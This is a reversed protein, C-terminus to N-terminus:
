SNGSQTQYRQVGQGALIGHGAEGEGGQSQQHDANEQQGVRQNDQLLAQVQAFANRHHQGAPQDPEQDRDETLAVGAHGVRHPMINQFVGFEQEEEERGHGVDVGHGLPSNEFGDADPQDAAAEVIAGQEPDGVM